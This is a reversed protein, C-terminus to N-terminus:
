HPWAKVLKDYWSDWGVRAAHDADCQEAHDVLPLWPVEAMGADVGSRAGSTAGPAASSGSVISGPCAQSRPPPRHRLEDALTRNNAVTQDYRAHEQQSIKLTIADVKRKLALAAADIKKQKEAVESLARAYGTADAKKLARHAAHQHWVIAGILAAIGFLILWVKPPIGKFFSGISGFIAKKAFWAGIAAFM